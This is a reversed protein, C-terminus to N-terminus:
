PHWESSSFFTAATLLCNVSCLLYHTVAPAVVLGAEKATLLSQQKRDDGTLFGTVKHYKDSTMIVTVLFIILVM